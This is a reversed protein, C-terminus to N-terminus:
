SAKKAELFAAAITAFITRGEVPKVFTQERLAIKQTAQWERADALQNANFIKSAVEVGGTYIRVRHKGSKLTTIM